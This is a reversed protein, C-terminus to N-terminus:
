DRIEPLTGASSLDGCVGESRQNEAVSLTACDSRSSVLSHGHRHPASAAIAALGRGLDDQLMRRHSHDRGRSQVCQLARVAAATKREGGGEYWISVARGEGRVLRVRRTGRGTSIPCAPEWAAESRVWRMGEPPPLAGEQKRPATIEGGKVVTVEGAAVTRNV